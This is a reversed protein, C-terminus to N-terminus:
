LWRERLYGAVFWLQTEREFAVATDGTSLASFFNWGDRMAQRLLHLPVDFLRGARSAEIEEIYMRAVHRGHSYHWRRHHGKRLREPLVIARVRLQPDYIGHMGADWLRIHFDHDETSAGSITVRQLHPSFAGVVDLASRQVALNATILCIPHSRDVRLRERGYDQIGLPAWHRATLWVPVAEPWEPLVPGGVCAAGPEHEFTDILRRAWDPPVRVDDDTFAVIPARAAAVAANRAYSVGPRAERLCRIQPHQQSARAAIDATSDTSANDVILIEHPPASQQAVLARIADEVVRARNRTCLAISLAPAKM